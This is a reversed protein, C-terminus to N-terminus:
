QIKQKLSLLADFVLVAIALVAVLAGLPMLISDHLVGNDDIYSSADGLLLSAISLFFLVIWLLRRRPM